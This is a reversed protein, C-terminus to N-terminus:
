NKILNSATVYVDRWEGGLLVGINPWAHLHTPFTLLACGKFGGGLKRKEGGGERM